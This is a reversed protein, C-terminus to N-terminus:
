TWLRPCGSLEEDGMANMREKSGDVDLRGETTECDVPEVETLSSIGSWRLTVSSSSRRNCVRVRAASADILISSFM